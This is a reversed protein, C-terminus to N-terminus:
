YKTRIFLLSIINDSKHSIWYILPSAYELTKCGLDWNINDSTCKIFKEFQCYIWWCCAIYAYLKLSGSSLWPAFKSHDISLSNPNPRSITFTIFLWSILSQISISMLFHPGFNLCMGFLISNVVFTYIKLFLLRRLNFIPSEWFLCRCPIM